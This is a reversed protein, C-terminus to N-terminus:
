TSISRPMLVFSPLARHELSQAVDGDGDGIEGLRNRMQRLGIAEGGALGVLIRLLADAEGIDLEAVRLDLQDLGHAGVPRDGAEELLVRGAPEVMDAEIDVVHRFREALQLAAVDAEDAVAADALVRMALRDGEDMRFAKEAGEEFDLLLRM